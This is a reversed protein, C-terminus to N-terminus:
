SATPEPVFRVLCQAVCAPRQSGALEVTVRFEAQLGGNQAEDARALHVLGRVRSDVPVATPFRVRDLGYNIATVGPEFSVVEFLMRPVLSLTLLGHAITSKFPGSAARVPDVHIWQHDDTADAFGDIRAQDVEIWESTGLDTGVAGAFEGLSEFKTGM